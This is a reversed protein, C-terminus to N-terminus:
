YLSVLYICGFYPVPTTGPLLNTAESVYTAVDAGYLDHNMRAGYSPGNGQTGGEGVSMRKTTEVCGQAGYCLHRYYVDALGNTDDAVVGNAATVFAIEMGDWKLYGPALSAAGTIQQGTSTLSVRYTAPVCSTVVGHCTDRVFVDAVGNTDGAVLNAASSVFAIYRGDYDNGDAGAVGPGVRPDGSPGTAQAGGSGLSIRETSPTCATSQGICTDRMFVDEVGNTDGAVLNSAASVFAVYRDTFVPSGSAANAEAGDTAVSIRRSVPACGGPSGFCVDRLFVDAVGNADGPVMAADASVFAVQTGKGGIAPTSSPLNSQSGDSRVSVRVTEPVCATRSGVCTDRVFVDAVGNTDGAVLNSATSVFAVYRGFYSVALSAEPASATWGSDGNAQSGDPAVSVRTTSPVCGTAADRCTDRVFIDWADNTDGPVLNSAKSAFFVYRAFFDAGGNVSAGNPLSGDPAVTIRLPIGPGSPPSTVVFDLTNSVGPAPPPNVVAIRFSGATAVDAATIAARVQTSSLYTTARVAGNWQVVAGQVFSTGTVTLDFAPGGAVVGSPSLGSIALPPPAPEITFTLAPSTGGPSPNTVRVQATGATAVDAATIAARVQTSSVFTTARPAGNWQVAAGSMFGSGNVSLDFPGSGAMTSAPSLSAVAPAPNQVLFGAATSTGGGKPPNVVTVQVTGATALDSAPIAATLQTSSVYTTTRAAGNWQVASETVFGSGTVTLTFAAGGVSATTPSVASLVPVPNSSKKDNDDGCAALVSCAAVLFVFLLQTIRRQPPCGPAKRSMPAEMAPSARRSVGAYGADSM